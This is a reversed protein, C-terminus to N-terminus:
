GQDYGACAGGAAFPASDDYNGAGGYPNEFSGKVFADNCFGFGGKQKGKAHGDAFAANAINGYRFRPLSSFEGIKAGPYDGYDPHHDSHDADWEKPPIAGKIAAGGGQWWYESTTVNGGSNYNEFSDIGVTTLMFSGAPKAMQSSSISPAAPNGTGSGDANQDDYPNGSGPGYQAWSETSTFVSSNAAYGYRMGQPQAPSAWISNGQDVLPAPSGDTSLWTYNSIGNKVYPGVNERWTIPSWSQRNQLRYDARPFFDDNDGAYMISATGLNKLNSLDQTKKAALKAQAFVPFLIAALIAIIAIVVLLEILTFAKKM